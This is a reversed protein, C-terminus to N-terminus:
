FVGVAMAYALVLLIIGILLRMWRKHSDRWKELVAADKGIYVLVALTILPIIFMMNYLLIYPLVWVFAHGEAKLIEIVTLYIPVSCPAELIAM